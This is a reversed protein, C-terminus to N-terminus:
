KSRMQHCPLIWSEGERAWNWCSAETKAIPDYSILVHGKNIIFRDQRPFWKGEGTIASFRQQQFDFMYYSFQQTLEDLRESYLFRGGPSLAAWHMPTLNGIIKRPKNSDTFIQYIITRPQELPTQTAYSKAPFLALISIFAFYIRLRGM